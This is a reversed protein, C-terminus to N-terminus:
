GDDDVWKIDLRDGEKLGLVDLRGPPVELLYRSKQKPELYVCFPPVSSFITTIRKQEDLYIADFKFGVFFSHIGHKGSSDFEFFLPICERRFMLGRARTHLSDCVELGLELSKSNDTNTISAKKLGM